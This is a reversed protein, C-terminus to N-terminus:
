SGPKAAMLAALATQLAATQTAWQAPPPESGTASCGTIDAKLQTIYAAVDAGAAILSPILQLGASIYALVAPNM